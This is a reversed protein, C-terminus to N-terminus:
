RKPVFVRKRRVDVRVRRMVSPAKPGPQPPGPPPPELSPLITVKASAADRLHRFAPILIGGLRSDARQITSLEFHDTDIHRLLFPARQELRTIRVFLALAIGNFVGGLAFCYAAGPVPAVSHCEFPLWGDGQWAATQKAPAVRAPTVPTHPIVTPRPSSSDTCPHKPWPPGLEDFFVRGGDPSQYFYVAADCSPCRANPTTYSSLEREYQTKLVDSFSRLQSLHSNGSRGAHGDGGWGCTCSLPHNWANCMTLRTIPWLPPLQLLRTHELLERLGSYCTLHVVLKADHKWWACPWPKLPM